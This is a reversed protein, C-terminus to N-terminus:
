TSSIHVAQEKKHDAASEKKNEHWDHQSTSVLNEKKKFKFATKPRPRRLEFGLNLIYFDIL